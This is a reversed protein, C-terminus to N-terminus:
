AQTTVTGSIRIDEKADVERVKANYKMTITVPGSYEFKRQYHAAGMVRLYGKDDFAAYANSIGGAVTM